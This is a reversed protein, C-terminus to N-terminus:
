KCVLCIFSAFTRYTIHLITCRICFICRAEHITCMRLMLYSSLPKSEKCQFFWKTSVFITFQVSKMCFVLAVNWRRVAFKILWCYKPPQYVSFVTIIDCWSNCRKVIIGWPNLKRLYLLNNLIRAVVYLFVVYLLVGNPNVSLVSVRPVTVQLGDFALNRLLPTLHFHGLKRNHFTM